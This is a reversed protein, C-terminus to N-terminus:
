RWTLADLRGMEFSALAFASTGILSDMETPRSVYYDYGIDQPNLSAVISTGNLSLSGNAYSILFEASVSEYIKSAISIVSDTGTRNTYQEDAATDYEDDLLELRAGRLLTYVTMFSSSAEVYNGAEGPRDVVQWVGPVGTLAKSREAAQVQASMVNRFLLKLTAYAESCELDQSRAAIELTNLIGLSFWALSRGWVEPSAGTSANAWRHAKLADYGHVLLGSPQVCIDYLTQIQRLAAELAVLSDGYYGDHLQPLITVFPAYSYMGDLYSLNRYATLNNVNNYYWLGGNANRPQLALSANLADITPLYEAAQVDNGFGLSWALMDAGLSLRDLPLKSDRSVNAFASISSALSENLLPRLADNAASLTVPKTVVALAQWFLGLQIFGTSGGADLTAQGREEISALMRVALDHPPPGANVSAIVGCAVAFLHRVKM